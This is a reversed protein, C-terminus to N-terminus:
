QAGADPTIRHATERCVESARRSARALLDIAAADLQTIGATKEIRAAALDIQALARGLGFRLENALRRRELDTAELFERRLANRETVDVAFCLLTPLGDMDIPAFSLEVDIREGSKVRHRTEIFAYDRIPGIRRQM